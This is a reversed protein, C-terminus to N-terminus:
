FVRGATEAGENTRCLYAGRPLAAVAAPNFGRDELWALANSEVTRFAVVETAQGRIRNHILNPAITIGAFDLGYIRGTEIVSQFEQTTSNVGVLTQLEDCAFLKRGPLARAVEFAFDCFFAFAEPTQGPYLASPEFVCWGRAGDRELDALTRAPRTRTRYSFQGDHDFVFKAAARCGAIFRYPTM